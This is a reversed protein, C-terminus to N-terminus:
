GDNSKPIATRSSNFNQNAYLNSYNLGIRNNCNTPVGSIVFSGVPLRIAVAVKLIVPDVVPVIKRVDEPPEATNCHLFGAPLFRAGMWTGYPANCPKTTNRLPFPVKATLGVIKWAVTVIPGGGSGVAECIQGLGLQFM